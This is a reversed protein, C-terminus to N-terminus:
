SFIELFVCVLHLGKVFRHLLRQPQAHISLIQVAKHSVQWGATVGRSSNRLGRVHLTFKAESPVRFLPASCLNLKM